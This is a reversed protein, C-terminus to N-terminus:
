KLRIRNPRGSVLLVKKLPKGGADSILAQARSRTGSFLRFSQGSWQANYLDGLFGKDVWPIGWLRMQLPPMTQSDGQITGTFFSGPLVYVKVKKTNRRSLVFSGKGFFAGESDTLYLDYSGPPVTDIWLSELSFPFYGRRRWIRHSGLLFWRLAGGQIPTGAVTGRLQVQIKGTPSFVVRYTKQPKLYAKKTSFGWERHWGGLVIPFPYSVVLSFAGKGDTRTTQILPVLLDLPLDKKYPFCSIVTKSLPKGSADVALGKIQFPSPLAEMPIRITPSGGPAFFLRDLYGKKSAIVLVREGKPFLARVRGKSRGEPSTTLSLNAELSSRCRVWVRVGGLPKRDRAGFAFVERQVLPFPLRAGGPRMLETCDCYSTYSHNQLFLVVRVLSKQKQPYAEIAFTQEKKLRAKRLFTGPADRRSVLYLMVFAQAGPPLPALITGRLIQRKPLLIENFEELLIRRRLVMKKGPSRILVGWLSYLHAKTRPVSLWLMGERNSTGSYSPFKPKEEGNTRTPRVGLPLLHLSFGSANAGGMSLHFAVQMSPAGASPKAINSEGKRQDQIFDKVEERYASVAKEQLPPHKTAQKSRLDTTQERSPIGGPIWLLFLSLLLFLLALFPLGFGTITRLRM